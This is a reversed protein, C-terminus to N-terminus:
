SAKLEYVAEGNSFTGVCTLEEYGYLRKLGDLCAEVKAREKEALFSTVKEAAQELYGDLDSKGVNGCLKRLRYRSIHFEQRVADFFAKQSEMGWVSGIYEEVGCGSEVYDICAHQYYGGTIVVNWFLFDGGVALRQRPYSRDYDSSGKVIDPLNGMEFDDETVVVCRNEYKFNSTAM